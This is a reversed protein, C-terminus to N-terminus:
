FDTSFASNASFWPVAGSGAPNAMGLHNQGHQSNPQSRSPQNQGLKQIGTNPLCLAASIIPYRIQIRSLKKPAIATNIYKDIINKRRTTELVLGYGYRIANPDKMHLQNLTKALALHESLRRM